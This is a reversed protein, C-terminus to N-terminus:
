NGKGLPLIRKTKGKHNLRTVTVQKKALDYDLFEVGGSGDAESILRVPLMTQNNILDITASGDSGVVLGIRGPM